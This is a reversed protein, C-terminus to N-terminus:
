SGRLNPTLYNTITPYQVAIKDMFIHHEAQVVLDLAERIMSGARKIETSHDEWADGGIWHCTWRDSSLERLLMTKVTDLSSCADVHASDLDRDEQLPNRFPKIVKTENSM